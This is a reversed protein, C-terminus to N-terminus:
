VKGSFSGQQIDQQIRRQKLEDWTNDLTASVVNDNVVTVKATHSTIVQALIQGDRNGYGAQRSDFTLTVIYHEPLTKLILTDVVILTEAIGDFKFTPAIAIFEKAIQIAREKPDSPVVAKARAIQVISELHLQTENLGFPLAEESAWGDVWEISKVNFGDQVVLTYFFYDAPGQRPEYIKDDTFFSTEKFLSTVDTSNIVFSTNGFRNSTYSVTGDSRINLKEDLGIFGGTRVFTIETVGGVQKSVPYLYAVSVLIVTAALVAILLINSKRM